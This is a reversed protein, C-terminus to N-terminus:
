ASVTIVPYETLKIDRTIIVLDYLKAQMVLIRDFPDAHLMPLDAVGICEEPNIPLIKFGEIAVAELLNHPLTIRGISKKIAMEWFSASSIFIENARDCLIKKAKTHIKEPETLWWLVVHTDLLYHM